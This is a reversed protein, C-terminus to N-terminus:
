GKRPALDSRGLGPFQSHFGSEERLWDKSFAVDLTLASRLDVLPIPSDGSKSPNQFGGYISSLGRHVLNVVDDIASMIWNVREYQVRYKKMAAKLVELRRYLVPSRKPDKLRTSLPAEVDLAHLLFPLATCSVASILQWKILRSHM